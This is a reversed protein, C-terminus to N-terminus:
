GAFSAMPMDQGQQVPAYLVDEEGADRAFRLFKGFEAVGEGARHGATVRLHHAFIQRFQGLGSGHQVGRKDVQGVRGGQHAVEASFKAQGAGLHPGGYAQGRLFLAAVPVFQACFGVADIVVHPAVVAGQHHQGAPGVMHIWLHVVAQRLENGTQPRRDDAFVGDGM